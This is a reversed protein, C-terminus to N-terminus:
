LSCKCEIPVLLVVFAIGAFCANGVEDWLFYGLIGMQLPGIVLYGIFLLNTDFRIVDNSLLNVMQGVTTKGQASKSLKLSQIFM